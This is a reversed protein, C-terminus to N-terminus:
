APFIDMLSGGIPEFDVEGPITRFAAYHRLQHPTVPGSCGARQAAEALAPRLTQYLAYHDGYRPLLRDESVALRAAPVLARLSLIRAV